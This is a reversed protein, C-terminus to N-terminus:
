EEFFVELSAQIPIRTIINYPPRLNVVITTITGTKVNGAVLYLKSSDPSIGSISTGEYQDSLDLTKVKLGTAVDYIYIKNLYKIETVTNFENRLYRTENIIIKSGDPSLIEYGGENVDVKKSVTKTPVTYIFYKINNPENEDNKINESFLMKDKTYYANDKGYLPTGWINAISITEKLELTISDYIKIEDKDINISYIKSGDSSFMWPKKLDISIAPLDEIKNLTSNSYVSFTTGDGTKIEKSSDWWIVYFKNGAPPVILKPLEFNPDNSTIGLDKKFTLEKLNFIRIGQGMFRGPYDYVVFFLNSMLDAVNETDGVIASPLLGKKVIITQVIKNTDVDLKYAKGQYDMLWAYTKAYTNVPLMCVSISIMFSFIIKWKM